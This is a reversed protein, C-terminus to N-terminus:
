CVSCVSARTKGSYRVVNMVFVHMNFFKLTNALSDQVLSSYSIFPLNDENEGYWLDIEFNDM